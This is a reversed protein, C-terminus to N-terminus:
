QLCALQRVLVNKNQLGQYTRLLADTLKFSVTKINSNTLKIAQSPSLNFVGQAVQSNGVHSLQQNVLSVDIMNNDDLRISLKGSKSLNKASGKFRITLTIYNESGNSAASLGIQTTKDSSVPLSNCTVVQSGDDRTINECDCQGYCLAPMAIVALLFIPNIM